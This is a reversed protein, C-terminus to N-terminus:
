CVEIVPQQQSRTNPTINRHVGFISKPTVNPTRYLSHETYTLGGFPYLAKYFGKRHIEKMGLLPMMKMAWVNHELLQGCLM